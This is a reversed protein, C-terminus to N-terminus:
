RGRTLPLPALMLLFPQLPAAFRQEANVLLAVLLLIAASMWWGWPARRAAATAAGILGLATTVILGIRVLSAPGRPLSVTALSYRSFSTPALGTVRPVNHFAVKLPVTPHAEIFKLVAHRLARDM